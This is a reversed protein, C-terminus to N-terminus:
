DHELNWNLIEEALSEDRWRVFNKKLYFDKLLMVRVKSSIKFEDGEKAPDGVLYRIAIMYAKWNDPFFDTHSLRSKFFHIRLKGSFGLHSYGDIIFVEEMPSDKFKIVKFNLNAANFIEKIEEPPSYSRLGFNLKSGSIRKQNDCSIILLLPILIKIINFRWKM